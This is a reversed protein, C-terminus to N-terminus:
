RRSHGCKNALEDSSRHRVCAQDGQGSIPLRVIDKSVQLNFPFTLSATELDCGSLADLCTFDQFVPKTPASSIFVCLRRMPGGAASHPASGECLLLVDGSKARAAGLARCFMNLGVVIRNVVKALADQQCLNRGCLCCGFIHQCEPELLKGPPPSSICYESEDYIESKDLMKGGSSLFSSLFDPGITQGATGIGRHNKPDREFDVVQSTQAGQQSQSQRKREQQRTKYLNVCVERQTGGM